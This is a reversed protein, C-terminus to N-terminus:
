QVSLERTMVYEALLLADSVATHLLIHRYASVKTKLLGEYLESMKGKANGVRANRFVFDYDLNPEFKWLGSAVGTEGLERARDYRPHQEYFPSVDHSASFYWIVPKKSAQRGTAAARAAEVANEAVEHGGRISSLHSFFAYFEDVTPAGELDRYQIDPNLFPDFSTPDCLLYSVTSAYPDFGNILAIDYITASKHWTRPGFETDIFYWPVSQDVSALSFRGRGRILRYQITISFLAGVMYEYQKLPRPTTGIQVVTGSSLGVLFVRKTQNRKKVLAGLYLCESFVIITTDTTISTARIRESTISQTINTSGRLLGVIKMVVDNIQTMSELTSPRGTMCERFTKHVDISTEDAEPAETESSVLQTITRLNSVLPIQWNAVFITGDKGRMDYLMGRRAYDRYKADEMPVVQDPLQAITTKGKVSTHALSASVIEYMYNEPRSETSFKAVEEHPIPLMNHTMFKKYDQLEIDDTVIAEPYIERSFAVQRAVGGTTMADPVTDPARNSADTLYTITLRARTNAVFNMSQGDNIDQYEQNMYTPFGSAGIFYVHDFELGKVSQISSTYITGGESGYQDSTQVGNSALIQRIADFKTKTASAKQTVPSIICICSPKVGQQVRSIIDAAVQEFSSFKPLLTREGLKSPDSSVLEAHIAPRTASMVNALELLLPNVFRYTMHYKVVFPRSFTGGERPEQETGRMLLEQYFGGHRINLRQRPDGIITFSKFHYKEYIMKLLQFRENSADQAEDFIIHQYAPKNDLTLFLSAFQDSDRIAAEIQADFDTKRQGKPLLMQSLADITTLWIKKGPKKSIEEINNVLELLRMLLNDVAANTYSVVLVGEAGTEDGSSQVSSLRATKHAATTTKGTGPGSNVVTIGQSLNVVLEQEPDLSIRSLPVHRGKGHYFWLLRAIRIRATSGNEHSPTYIVTPGPTSKVYAEAHKKVTEYTKKFWGQGELYSFVDDPLNRYIQLFDREEATVGGVMEALEAVPMTSKTPKDRFNLIFCLDIRKYAHSSSM